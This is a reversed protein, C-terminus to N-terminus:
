FSGVNKAETSEQRRKTAELDSGGRFFLYKKKMGDDLTNRHAIEARRLCCSGLALVQATGQARKFRNLSVETKVPAM